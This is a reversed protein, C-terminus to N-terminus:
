DQRFNRLGIRIILEGDVPVARELQLVWNKRPTLQVEGKAPEARVAVDSSGDGDLDLEEEIVAPLTREKAPVWDVQVFGESREGTASGFVPQRILTSYGEHEATRIVEGGSYWPSVSIGTAATLAEPWVNFGFFMGLIIPLGLAAWGYGLVPKIKQFIGM